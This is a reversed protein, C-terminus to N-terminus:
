FNSRGIDRAGFEKIGQRAGFERAVMFAGWLCAKRPDDYGFEKRICEQCETSGDIVANFM